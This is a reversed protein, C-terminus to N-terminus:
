ERQMFLVIRLNRDEPLVEITVQNDVVKQFTDNIEAYELLYGVRSVRITHTGPLLPVDSWYQLGKGNLVILGRAGGGPTNIKFNAKAVATISTRPVASAPLVSCSRAYVPHAIPM